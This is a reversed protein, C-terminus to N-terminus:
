DAKPDPRFRFEQRFRPPAWGPRGMMMPGMMHHGPGRPRNRGPAEAIGGEPASPGVEYDKGNLTLKSVRLFGTDATGQSRPIKAGWGELTVAAGEKLGEIFGTFRHLAPVYWAAEGTELVIAGRRLGLTGTLTMQELAPLRSREIRRHDGPRPDKGQAYLFTGLVLLGLTLIAIRKM